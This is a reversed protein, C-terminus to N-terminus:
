AVYRNHFRVWSPMVEEILEFSPLFAVRLHHTGPAQGFGAGNVTVMGTEELLAMCYEFDGGGAPLRDLRPFLYMAGTEGFCRMGDMESFYGRIMRAKARLDELIRRRESVFTDYTATGAKPGTVLLYTLLQGMTNPCLNVSAQKILVDTLSLNTGQVRPPNRVELYGGRHGCEGCFGKSVSHLSFLPVDDGGVVKAFSTWPRGYTNQQYVEDAIVALGNDAAFQVVERMSAEDLVAGTPNGPNIVVIAKVTLGRQQAQQLPRELCDRHLAWGAEEDPHYGVLTGGCRAVTASYLPYQPIPVLIGDTAGTILAELVFVAGGSAGDTLIVSRRHSALASGADFGDRSNIFGAVADRVFAFGASDTYAGTGTRSAELMSAALEIVDSPFEAPDKMRRKLLAPDELLSLVSRYFSIPAQGLAQPNGINCPVIRRGEAAIEAARLPIPGRVAYEMELVRPNVVVTQTM